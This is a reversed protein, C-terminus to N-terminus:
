PVAIHGGTVGYDLFQGPSERRVAQIDDIFGLHVCPVSPMPRTALGVVSDIDHRFGELPLASDLTVAHDVVREGALELGADVRKRNM